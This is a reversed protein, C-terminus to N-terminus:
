ETVIHQSGPKVRIDQEETQTVLYSPINVRQNGILIHGHSVLQRAEKPTEALGRRYVLTPLRRELVDEVTIDLVDNLTADEDVIDLESLKRLLQEEREEDEEANLDRARQRFDRVASQAKWVERKNALGYEERLRKEDQIRDEQWARTPTEYQKRQTRM